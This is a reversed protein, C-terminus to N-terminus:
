LPSPPPTAPEEEAWVRIPEKVGTSRACNILRSLVHDNLTHGKVLLLGGNNGMVDDALTMGPRLDLLGVEVVRSVRRALGEIKALADLVQRDYSPDHDLNAFAEAFVLGKASSHYYDTAVRLIRSFVHSSMPQATQRIVDRVPELRPVHSLLRDAVEPLKAVAGQEDASLEGGAYLKNVTEASLTVAGLQAFLAALELIWLDQKLSLEGAMAVALSRIRRGTSFAAPNALELVESMMDAAGKLTLELLERESKVLRHQAVAADIAGNLIHSACPKTLFRFINGENVAAVATELDAYGTLLMRVTDPWRTRVLKLLVAGNMVPMRMDSVVVAIEPGAELRAVAEAGSNATLVDAKQRLRVSLGDLVLREDDVLLVRPRASKPSVPEETKARAPWAPAAESM